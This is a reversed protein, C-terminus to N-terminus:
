SVSPLWNSRLKVSGCLALIFLENFGDFQRHVRLKLLKSVLSSRRGLEIGYFTMPSGLASLPPSPFDLRASFPGNLSERAGM